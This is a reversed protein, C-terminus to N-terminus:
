EDGFGLDREEFNVRNAKLFAEFEDWWEAPTDDPEAEWKKLLAQIREAQSLKPQQEEVEIRGVTEEWLERPIQVMENGNEDKVVRAAQQLHTLDVM